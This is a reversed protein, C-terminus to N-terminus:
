PCLRSTWRNPNGGRRCQYQAGVWEIAWGNPSPQLEIRYRISGVSDDPLGIQTHEIIAYDRDIGPYDIKITEQQRGEASDGSELLQAAIENLNGPELDYRQTFPAIEVNRYNSRLNSTPQAIARCATQSAVVAALLLTRQLM